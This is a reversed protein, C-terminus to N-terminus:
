VDDLLHLHLILMQNDIDAIEIKRQFDNEKSKIESSLFENERTLKEVKIRLDEIDMELESNKEDTDIYSFTM